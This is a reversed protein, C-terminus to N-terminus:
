YSVLGKANLTVTRSDNATTALTITGTTNPYGTFRSFIVDGLGSPTMSSPITITEDVTTDRAAYSTGRFVTATGAVVHLGWSTDGSSGRAYVEARRLGEVISQTTLDLDNRTQFGQFLPLSIGLILTMIGVSLLVELLTFGREAQGHSRRM